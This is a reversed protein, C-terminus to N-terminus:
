TSLSTYNQKFKGKFEMNVINVPTPYDSIIKVSTTDSFGFVKAVFEGMKQTNEISLTDLYQNSVLASFKSTIVSKERRTAIVDYNGTDVHRLQLTKLNLVGDIINNNQDRVFQTSLEVNMTFKTGVYLKSQHQSYDGNIKLIYGIGNINEFITPQLVTYKKEGWSSDSSDTILVIKDKNITYPYNIYINTENTSQNFFTNENKLITLKFLNDLRPISKDIRGLYSKLIYYEFGTISNFRKVIAYIYNDYSQISEIIDNTELVYRYFANQLVKDASFRNTYFYISNQNEEGVFAITNQAPCVCTCKYEQPLYGYCHSSVEEATSLSTGQQAIYMYLRGKDFFYILSGMLLPETLRATSYFATPTLQATLPTIQNESGRLEFQTDAKSNVFLFDSFPTLSVIETYTKSSARIDIPDASVINSPDQLFLDEYVGLQSSFVVDGSAFFLRDRYTTITNLNIHRADTKDSNLFVSPGPNTDRDGTTREKWKIPGFYWDKNIGEPSADFSLKQPMRNEDIVSCIDPSRVKQTYPRGTGTIMSNNIKTKQGEPFNIVRYYGSSQSLYPGATYYIKGLGFGNPYQGSANIQSILPHSPDYLAKLMNRASEDVVTDGLILSNSKFPDNGYPPFRIESFDAVSQGLWPQNSDKYKYDEVPLTTGYWVLWKSYTTADSALTPSVQTIDVDICEFAINVNGTIVGSSRWSSSVETVYLQFYYYTPSLTNVVKTVYGYVYEEESVWILCGVGYEISSPIVTTSYVIVIKNLSSAVNWGGTNTVGSQTAIMLTTGNYVPVSNRRYTSPTTDFSLNTKNSNYTKTVTATFYRSGVYTTVGGVGQTIAHVNIISDEGIRDDGYTPLTLSSTAALTTGTLSYNLLYDYGFKDLSSINTPEIIQSSSNTSNNVVPELGGPVGIVRTATYYTVKGGKLDATTTETGDLNITFGNKGSTFGAKVLTNLVIISSGVTTAKLVDKAKYSGSGYTIYSRTASSVITSNQETKEVNSTPTIDIWNDENIKYVYFLISNEDTADYNIAIAFRNDENITFWYWWLDVSSFPLNFLNLKNSNDTQTNGIFSIQPVMEFPPRKEFSRELSILANDLAEAEIQLRKSPTQTSVGSSLSFIPIRTSNTGGAPSLRRKIPPM